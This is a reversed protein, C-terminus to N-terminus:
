FVFHAFVPTLFAGALISVFTQKCMSFILEGFSGWCNCNRWRHSHCGRGFTLNNIRLRWFWSRFRSFWLINFCIFLHISKSRRFFTGGFISRIRIVICLCVWINDNVGFIVKLRRLRFWGVFLRQRSNCGARSSNVTKLILLLRLNILRDLFLCNVNRRLKKEHFAIQIMKQISLNNLSSLRVSLVSGQGAKFWSLLWFTVLLFRTLLFWGIECVKWVRLGGLGRESDIRSGIWCLRSTSDCVGTEWIVEWLNRKIMIRMRGRFSARKVITIQQSKCVYITLSAGSLTMLLLQEHRHAFTQNGSFIIRLTFLLKRRFFFIQNCNRSRFDLIKKKGVSYVDCFIGGRWFAEIRGWDLAVRLHWRLGSELRLLIKWLLVKWALDLGLFSSQPNEFVYCM